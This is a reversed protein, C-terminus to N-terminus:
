TTTPSLISRRVAVSRCAKDRLSRTMVVPPRPGVTSSMVQSPMQRTSPTLRTSSVADKSFIWTNKSFSPRSIVSFLTFCAISGSPHSIKSLSHPVAGPQTMSFSPLATMMSGPGGLSIRCMNSRLTRGQSCFRDSSTITDWVSCTNPTPSDLASAMVTSRICPSFGM